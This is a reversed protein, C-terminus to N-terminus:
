LTGLIAITGVLKLRLVLLHDVIVGLQLPLRRTEQRRLLLLLRLQRVELLLPLAGAHDLVEDLVETLLLM